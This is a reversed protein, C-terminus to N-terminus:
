LDRGLVKGKVYEGVLSLQLKGSNKKVPARNNRNAYFDFDQDSEKNYEALSGPDAEKAFISTRKKM